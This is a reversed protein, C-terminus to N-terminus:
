SRLCFCKPLLRDAPTQTKQAPTPEVRTQAAHLGRRGNFQGSKTSGFSSEAGTAGFRSEAEAGGSAIGVIPPCRPNVPRPNPQPRDFPDLKADSNLAETPRTRCRLCDAPKDLGFEGSATKQLIGTAGMSVM